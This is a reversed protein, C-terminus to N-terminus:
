RWQCQGSVCGCSVGFAAANYCETYECTTIVPEENESQCVQNSCGGSTCDEDASCSGNTSWGCFKAKTPFVKRENYYVDVSGFYGSISAEWPITGACNICTAVGPIASTTINLIYVGDKSVLEGKARHCPSILGVSGNFTMGNETDIRVPAVEEGCKGQGPTFNLTVEPGPNQEVAVCKNEQCVGKSLMISCLCQPGTCEPNQQNYTNVYEGLGCDCCKDLRVCDSDKECYDKVEYGPPVSPTQICGAGLLVLILALVSITKM